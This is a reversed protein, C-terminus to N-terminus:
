VEAGLIDFKYFVLEGDIVEAITLYKGYVLGTDIHWRNGVLLPERVVSHGHIIYDIGALPIQFDTCKSYEVYNRDWVIEFLLDKNGVELVGLFEDWSKIDQPVAAHVVGFKKGQHSVEIVYPFCSVKRAIVDREEQTHDTFAWIGGNYAWLGGNHETNNEVAFVDHNGLVSHYSGTVDNVFFDLTGLSDSGRDILDGACVLTDVGETFGLTHLAKHLVGIEGHLDTTFLLRGTTTIKKLM